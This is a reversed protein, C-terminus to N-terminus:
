PTLLRLVKDASRLTRARALGKCWEVAGYGRLQACDIAHAWSCHAGASVPRLSSPVIRATM